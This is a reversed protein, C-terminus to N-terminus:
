MTFIDIISIGCLFGLMMILVFFVQTRAKAKILAFKADEKKEKERRMLQPFTFSIDKLMGLWYINM